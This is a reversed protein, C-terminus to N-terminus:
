LTPERGPLSSGFHELGEARDVTALIGDIVELLVAVDLPKTLYAAAGAALLRQVQGTTADASVIVVPISSTAPDERLRHLIEEGSIDPLHLDLLILAPQHQRALEIGFRGQMASVVVVNERRSLIREILRLNSPNDEIHLLTHTPGNRHQGNAPGVVAPVEPQLREHREVTGEVRPLDVSFTSGRGVASEVILAGGMAEALNKSLALGIGTGEIDTSGADLRDFPAFLRDMQEPRIGPGTDAVSIRVTTPGQGSCSLAVSGRPHNYKVANSLLNLLVQKSRQRDAFIYDTMGTEDVILAVQRQDALSRVLDTSESVLESVLVPEPSLLLRGTEIRTIDLVEDILDLLHRGGKLIQDVPETDDGPLAQMKLLQSFGLVANLPTRLEHSMRSLFESKSRNAAEAALQAGRVAEEAARRTSIDTIYVFVGGDKGDEEVDPVSLASVWQDSGDPRRIRFETLEADRSPVQLKENAAQVVKVDDPHVYPLMTGVRVIENRELGLIREVNPSVYSIRREPGSLNARIVVAPGSMLLRELFRHTTELEETRADVLARAFDQRRALTQVVAATLLAALLGAGLLIWPSTTPFTGSLSTRARVVLTWREAGLTFPVALVNGSIPLERESTLVLRAPDPTPSAYLAGSMESFASGPTRPLPRSPDIDSELLVVVHAPAPAAVAFVLKTRGADKVMDAAPLRGQLARAVVPSLEAARQGQVPSGGVATTVVFGQDGETLVAVSTGPVRSLAGALQVFGTQDPLTAFVALLELRSYSSELANQLLATVEGAREHLLREDNQAVVNHTVGFAAVSVAVLILFVVAAASAKPSTRRAPANSGMQM